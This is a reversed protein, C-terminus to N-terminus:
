RNDVPESGGLSFTEGSSSATLEVGQWTGCQDPLRQGPCSATLPPSGSGPEITTPDDSSFVAQRKTAPKETPLESSSSCGLILELALLSAASRMVLRDVIM